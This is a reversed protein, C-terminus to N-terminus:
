RDDRSLRDALPWGRQALVGRTFAILPSGAPLALGHGDPTTLRLPMRVFAEDPSVGVVQMLRLTDSYAGILIHQGNDFALGDIDVRRARGGWQPAMEFLTPEAGRLRAEVAAAMGAWGGGIVAWRRVPM